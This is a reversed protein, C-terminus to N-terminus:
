LFYSFCLFIPSNSFYFHFGRFQFSSFNSFVVFSFCFCCNFYLFACWLSLLIKSTPLSHPNIKIHHTHTHMSKKIKKKRKEGTGNMLQQGKKGKGVGDDLCWCMCCCCCCSLSTGLFHFYFYFFYLWRMTHQTYSSPFFLFFNFSCPMAASCLLLPLLCFWRRFCVLFLLLLFFPFLNVFYWLYSFLVKYWKGTKIQNHLFCLAVHLLISFFYFNRISHTHYKWTHQTKSHTHTLSPTHITQKTTARM